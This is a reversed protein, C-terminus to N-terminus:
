GPMQVSSKAFNGSLQWKLRSNEAPQTNDFHLCMLCRVSTGVSICGRKLISTHWVKLKLKLKLWYYVRAKSISQNLTITRKWCYNLNQSKTKQKKDRNNLSEREKNRFYHLRYINYKVACLIYLIKVM